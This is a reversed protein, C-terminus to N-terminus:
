KEIFLQYNVQYNDDDIIKQLGTQNEQNIYVPAKLNATINKPDKDMKVIAFAKYYEMQPYEAELIDIPFLPFVIEPEDVSTLWYILGDGDTLLVYEKYNEFGLIGDDFKIIKEENFEIEGFQITQLKM